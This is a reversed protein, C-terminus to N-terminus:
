LEEDLIQIDDDGDDDDDDDDDDDLLRRAKEVESEMSDQEKVKKSYVKEKKGIKRSQMMFQVMIGLIAIVIGALLGAWGPLAVGTLDVVNMGASFGGALGTVVIVVPEIFRVALIALILGIVAAAIAAVPTETGGLVIGLGLIESFVLLFIGVRYLFWSLVGLVIGAGLIVGALVPGTLGAMLGGVAGLSAGLLFGVLAGLLKILKLGFFCVLVGVVVAAATIAYNVGADKIILAANQQFINNLENGMSTVQGM